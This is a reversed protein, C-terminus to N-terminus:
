NQLNVLTGETVKRTLDLIASDIDVFNNAKSNSELYDTSPRNLRLPCPLLEPMVSHHVILSTLSPFEKTFGKIKFGQNTQVILYHAINTAQYDKPVRLSLAYCGPKSTSHRVLFSGVPEQQLIELSIERPIGAQFWPASNLLAEEELNCWLSDTRIPLTPLYETGAPTASSNVPSLNVSQSFPSLLSSQSCNLAKPIRQEVPSSNCSTKSPNSSTSSTSALDLQRYGMLLPHCPFVLAASSQGKGKILNKTTDPKTALRSSCKNMECLSKKNSKPINNFKHQHQQQSKDHLQRTWSINPLVNNLSKLPSSEKVDVCSMRLADGVLNNLEEAQVDFKQHHGCQGCCYAIYDQSLKMRILNSNNNVQNSNNNNNSNNEEVLKRYRKASFMSADPQLTKIRGM